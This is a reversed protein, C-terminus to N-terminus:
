YNTIQLDEIGSHTLHMSFKVHMRRPRGNNGDYQLLATYGDDTSELNSVEAGEGLNNQSLWDEMSRELAQLQTDTLTVENRNETLFERLTKFTM